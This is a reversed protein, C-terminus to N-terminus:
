CEGVLGVAAVVDMLRWRVIGVVVVVVVADVM